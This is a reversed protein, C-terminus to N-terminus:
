SPGTADDPRMSTASEEDPGTATFGRSREVAVVGPVGGLDTLAEEACAGTVVGVIPLVSGVHMGRDTLAAAVARISPLHADDVTVTIDIM